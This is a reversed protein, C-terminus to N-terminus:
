KSRKRLTDVKVDKRVARGSATQLTDKKVGARKLVADLRADARIKRAM